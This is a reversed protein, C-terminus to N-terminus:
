GVLGLKIGIERVRCAPHAKRLVNVVNDVGPIRRLNVFGKEVQKCINRLQINPQKKLEIYTPSLLANVGSLNTNNLTMSSTFPLMTSLPSLPSSLCLWELECLAVIVANREAQFTPLQISSLLVMLVTMGDLQMVVGTTSHPTEVDGGHGAVVFTLLGWDDSCSLGMELAVSCTASLYMFNCKILEWQKPNLNLSYHSAVSVAHQVNIRTTAILLLFGVASLFESPKLAERDWEAYVIGPQIPMHLLKSNEFNHMKLAKKIQLKLLILVSSPELNHQIGCRLFSKGNVPGGFTVDFDEQLESITGKFLAKRGANFGDDVYIDLVHYNGGRCGIYLTIEDSLSVFDLQNLKDHKLQYIYDEHGLVKLSLPQKIFVTDGGM